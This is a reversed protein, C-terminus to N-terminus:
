QNVDLIAWWEEGDRGPWRTGAHGAPLPIDALHTARTVFTASGDDSRCITRMHCARDLSEEEAVFGRDEGPAEEHRCAPVHRSGPSQVSIAANRGDASRERVSFHARETSRGRRAMLAWAGPERPCRPAHPGTLRPWLVAPTIFPVNPRRLGSSERRPSALQCGSITQASAQGCVLACESGEIERASIQSTRLTLLARSSTRPNASLAPPEM